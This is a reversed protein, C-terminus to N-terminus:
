LFDVRGVQLAKKFIGAVFNGTCMLLSRGEWVLAKGSKM